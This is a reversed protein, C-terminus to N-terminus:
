RGLLTTGRQLSTLRYIAHFGETASSLTPLRGGAGPSSSSPEGPRRPSPPSDTDLPSAGRPSAPSRALPRMPTM